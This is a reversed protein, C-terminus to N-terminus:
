QIGSKLHNWAEGSRIEELTWQCYALRHLWETRDPRVIEGPTHGAVPWAMSGADCAIVPVGALAADVGSNSNFTVICAADRLDDALGRDACQFGKPTQGLPHRRFRVPLNIKEATERYWQEIDVNALSADGKVQGMLLAYEGGQKWDAVPVGHKQWRDGPADANCFDARGNLGDFGLSTYEHRDGFYGREMVLYRRGNAQQARIQSTNRHGWIVALDCPECSAPSTFETKLGHRRMGEALAQGWDQQHSAARLFFTAKLAM